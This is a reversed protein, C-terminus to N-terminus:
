KAPLADDEGDNGQQLHLLWFMNTFCEQACWCFCCNCYQWRTQHVSPTIVLENLISELHNGVSVTSTDECHNWSRCSKVVWPRRGGWMGPSDGDRTYPQLFINLIEGSEEVDGEWFSLGRSSLFLRANFWPHSTTLWSHKSVPFFFVPM